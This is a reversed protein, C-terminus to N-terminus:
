EVVAPKIDHDFIQFAPRRNELWLTTGRIVPDSKRQLSGAAVPKREVRPHLSGGTIQHLGTLDETASTIKGLTIEPNM